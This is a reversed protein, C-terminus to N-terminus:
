QHTEELRQRKVLLSIQDRPGANGDSRLSDSLGLVSSVPCPNLHHGQSGQAKTDATVFFFEDGSVPCQHSPRSQRCEHQVSVQLRTFESASPKKLILVFYSDLSPLCFISQFSCM